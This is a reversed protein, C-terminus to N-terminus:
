GILHGYKFEPSSLHTEPNKYDYKWLPRPMHLDCQDLYKSNRQTLSKIKSELVNKQETTLYVKPYIYNDEEDYTPSADRLQQGLDKIRDYM